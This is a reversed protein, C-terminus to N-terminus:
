NSKLRLIAKDVDINNINGLKKLMTSVQKKTQSISIKLDSILLAEKSNKLVFKHEIDKCLTLIEKLKFKFSNIQVDIDQPNIESKLGTIIDQQLNQLRDNLAKLENLNDNKQKRKFLRM